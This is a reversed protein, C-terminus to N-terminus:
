PHALGDVRDQRHRLVLQVSDALTPAYARRTPVFCTPRVARREGTGIGPAVMNVRRCNRVRASRLEDSTARPATTGCNTARVARAAAGPLSLMRTTISIVPPFSPSLVTM